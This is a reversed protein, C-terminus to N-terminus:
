DMLSLLQEHKKEKPQRMATIRELLRQAMPDDASILGIAFQLQKLQHEPLVTKGAGLVVFLERYSNVHPECTKLVEANLENFKLKEAIFVTLTEAMAANFWARVSDGTIRNGAAKANLFAICQEVSLDDDTITDLTGQSAEYRARLIGDQASELLDGIHPLLATIQDPTPAPLMPISACVSPLATKGQKTMLATQKCIVRALRQGTMPESTGAIFPVVAHRNSVVSM